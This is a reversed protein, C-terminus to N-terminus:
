VQWRNNVFHGPKDITIVKAPSGVATADLPIDRTVVSGAGITVNDHIHVDEVICVNPGIYVNDGIIAASNYNSGITVFQSLNCNNGIETTPNVVLSLGHGIYLGYGINTATPIQIGFKRTLRFHNAKSLFRVIVNKHKAMRFWVTYCFSRNFFYHRFFCLLSLKGCYRYLDSKIYESIEKFNMKSEVSSSYM